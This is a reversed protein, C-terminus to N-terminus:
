KVILKQVFTKGNTTDIMKMFYIGAPYNSVSITNQGENLNDTALLTGLISYVELKMASGTVINVFSNAPNPSLKIASKNYDSIKVVPNAQDLMVIRNKTAITKDGKFTCVGTISTIITPIPKGVYDAEKKESYFVSDYVVNNQKLNYYWLYKFNGPETFSVNDLTIVKAQIPNEHNFDLQSATIKVPTVHKNIDLVDCKGEIPIFRLMGFYNRITGTLNTILDGVQLDENKLNGPIDWIMIAADGEQIYKVNQFAEIQTLVAQGKYTYIVNGPNDGGNFPPALARLEALSAVQVPYSYQAGSISSPEMGDKWAQARIITTESIPIPTSYIDSTEEDPDSGDLTYRITAGPTASSIVVNIPGTQIGGPPNFTPAEVCNACSYDTICINDINVSRNKAENYKIIRVRVNGPVNIVVSVEFMGTGPDWAPVKVSNNEPSIWSIGGDTSYEVYVNGDKHTSFSGCYFSVTGVGGPKDSEMQIGNAGKSVFHFLTDQDPNARLRVSKTGLYRDNADMNCYGVILWTGSPLTTVKGGYGPNAFTSEFNESITCQAFSTFNFLFFFFASILAAKLFTFKRM